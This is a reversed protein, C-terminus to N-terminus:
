LQFFRQFSKLSIEKKLNLFSEGLVVCSTLFVRTKEGYGLGNGVGSEKGSLSPSLSLHGDGSVKQWKNCENM